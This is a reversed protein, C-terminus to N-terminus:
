LRTITNNTLFTELKNWTVSARESTILNASYKAFSGFTLTSRVILCVTWLLNCPISYNEQNKNSLVQYSVSAFTLYWAIGQIGNSMKCEFFETFEVLKDVQKKKCILKVFVMSWNGSFTGSRKTLCPITISVSLIPTLHLMILISYSVTWGTQKQLSWLKCHMPIELELLQNRRITQNILCSKGVICWFPRCGQLYYLRLIIIM